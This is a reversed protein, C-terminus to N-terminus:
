PWPKVYRGQEDIDAEKSLTRDPNRVRGYSRLNRGQFGSGTPPELPEIYARIMHVGYPIHVKTARQIKPNM